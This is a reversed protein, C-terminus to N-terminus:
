CRNRAVTKNNNINICKLVKYRGISRTRAPNRSNGIGRDFVVPRTLMNYISM